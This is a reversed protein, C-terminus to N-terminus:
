VLSSYENYKITKKEEEKRGSNLSLLKYRIVCLMIMGQKYKM